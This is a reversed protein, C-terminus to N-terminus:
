YSPFRIPVKVNAGANLSGKPLVVVNVYQPKTVDMAYYDHAADDDPQTNGLADVARTRLVYEGCTVNTWTFSWGIWAFKGVPADDLQAPSWSVADDTSVEASVITTGGAWARGRLEVTSTEELWRYRTFFDPVGPPIM